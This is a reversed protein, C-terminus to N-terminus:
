HFDVRNRLEAPFMDRRVLNGARIGRITSPICSMDIENQTMYIPLALYLLSDPLSEIRKKQWLARIDLIELSDPLKPLSPAHGWCQYLKLFNPLKIETNNVDLIVLEKLTEPLEGLERIKSVTAISEIKDPFARIVLENQCFIDTRIERFNILNPPLKDITILLGQPITYIVELEKMVLADSLDITCNDAVCLRMHTLHKTNITNLICLPMVLKQIIVNTPVQNAKRKYTM